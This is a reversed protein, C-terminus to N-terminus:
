LLPVHVKEVGASFSIQLCYRSQPFKGQERELWIVATLPYLGFQWLDVPRFV